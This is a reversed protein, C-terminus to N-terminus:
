YQRANVIPIFWLRNPHRRRKPVGKICLPCPFHGQHPRGLLGGSGADTRATIRLCCTKGGLRPVVFSFFSPSGHLLTSIPIPVRAGSASSIFFFNIARKRSNAVGIQGNRNGLNNNPAVQLGRDNATISIIGAVAPLKRRANTIVIDVGGLSRGFRVHPSYHLAMGGISPSFGTSPNVFPNSINLSGGTFKFRMASTGCLRVGTRTVLSGCTDRLRSTAFGDGATTLGYLSGISHGTRCAMGFSFSSSHRALGGTILGNAVDHVGPRGLTVFGFGSWAQGSDGKGM